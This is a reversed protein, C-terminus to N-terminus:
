RPLAQGASPHPDPPQRLLGLEVRGLVHAAVDLLRDGPRPGQERAELRDALLEGLGQLVALHLREELLL